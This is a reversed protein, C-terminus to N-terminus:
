CHIVTKYRLFVVWMCLQSMNTVHIIQPYFSLECLYERKEEQFYKESYILFFDYNFTSDARIIGQTQLYAHFNDFKICKYMKKKEILVNIRGHPDGM